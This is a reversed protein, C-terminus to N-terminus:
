PHPESAGKRPQVQTRGTTRNITHKRVQKAGEIGDCSHIVSLSNQRSSRFLHRSPTTPHSHSPFALVSLSSYPETPPETAKAGPCEGGAQSRVWASSVRARRLRVLWKGRMDMNLGCCTRNSVGATSAAHRGGPGLGM